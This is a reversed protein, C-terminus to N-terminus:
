APNGGSSLASLAAAVGSKRLTELHASALSKLQERHPSNGAFGAIDFVRAVTEGASLDSAALASLQGDLPDTFHGAPLKSGRLEAAHIWAAVTLMLHNASAGAALRDLASGIIRQPLKQSGDNAIQATRHALATNAFRESLAAIYAQPDLGANKRCPRSRRRGSRM